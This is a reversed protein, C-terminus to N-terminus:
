NVFLETGQRSALIQLLGGIVARGVVHSCFLSLLVIIISALDQSFTLVAFTEHSKHFYKIAKHVNLIYM